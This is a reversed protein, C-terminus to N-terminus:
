MYNTNCKKSVHINIKIYVYYFVYLVRLVIINICVKKTHSKDNLLAVIKLLFINKFAVKSLSFQM